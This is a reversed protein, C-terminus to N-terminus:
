YVKGKNIIGGSINNKYAVETNTKGTLKIYDCVVYKQQKDEENEFDNKASLLLTPILAFSSFTPITLILKNM